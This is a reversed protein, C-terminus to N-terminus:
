IVGEESRLAKASPRLLLTLILDNEVVAVIAWAQPKCEGGKQPGPPEGGRAGREGPEGPGGERAPDGPEGTRRARGRGRNRTFVQPKRKHKPHPGIAGLYEYSSGPAM